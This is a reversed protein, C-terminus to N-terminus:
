PWKVDLAYIEDSGLDRTFTLSGDAAVGFFQGSNAQGLTDDSVLRVGKIDAVSEIQLDSARIRHVKSEPGESLLYVYKGDSSPVWDDVEFQEPLLSWKQTTFDFVALSDNGDASTTVLKNPQPWWPQWRIRQGPIVTTRKTRLDMVQIDLWHGTGFFHGGPAIAVYALSNGDPSWAPGHGLEAVREPTGGEMSLVYLGLGSATLGSFAIRTGDPSIVPFLVMMPPFTLQVRESGDSHCRWLTRDPYSVYIVWKSDPSVRSEVASIGDLYPIFQRSKADYRVLEGRQKSGVAFIQKGDRSGVPSEYSLPGNTLQVPVAPRHLLGTSEPLAWLDWRGGHEAQFLFYKGDRTWVGTEEGVTTSVGNLPIQHPATGDTNVEWISFLLRDDVVTFRIRKGDPSVAPGVVEGSADLLKKRDSGDGNALYLSDADAFVIRGDPLFRAGDTGLNLGRPEGSPLPQIWTKPDGNPSLLLASLDPSIDFITAASKFRTPLLSTQGGAASVQFIRSSSAGGEAFYIRLGDTVLLNGGSSGAPSIKPEADNTLQRVGQVLPVPSPVQWWIVAAVVLLM